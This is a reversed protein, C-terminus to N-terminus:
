DQHAYKSPHGSTVFARRLDLCLQVLDFSTPAKINWVIKCGMQYIYIYILNRHKAVRFHLNINEPPIAILVYIYIYVLHSKQALWESTFRNRHQTLVNGLPCLHHGPGLQMPHDTWCTWRTHHSSSSIPNSWWFHTMAHVYCLPCKPGSSCSLSEDWVRYHNTYSVINMSSDDSLKPQIKLLNRCCRIINGLGLVQLLLVAIISENFIEYGALCCQVLVLLVWIKWVVLITEM